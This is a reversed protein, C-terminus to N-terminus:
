EGSRRRAFAPTDSAELRVGAGITDEAPLFVVGLNQLVTVLLNANARNVPAFDNTAEARKITNVALGTRESLDLVSLNLLGRAGRLQAGTPHNPSRARPTKM